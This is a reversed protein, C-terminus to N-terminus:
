AYTNWERRHNIFYAYEADFDAHVHKQFEVVNSYTKAPQLDDGRDRHYAVTVNPAPAGFSHPQGEPPSLLPGLSSLAGLDLLQEVKQLNTYHETLVAGVGDPHGDWHCYIGTISGDHNLKGIFSRTAM